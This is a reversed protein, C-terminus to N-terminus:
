PNTQAGKFLINFIQSSNYKYQKIAVLIELYKYHLVVYM